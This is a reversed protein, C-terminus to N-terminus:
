GWFGHGQEAKQLCVPFTSAPGEERGGTSLLGSSPAPDLM